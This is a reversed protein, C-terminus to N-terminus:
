KTCLKFLCCPYIKVDKDVDFHGCRPSANLQTSYCDSQDLIIIQDCLSTNTDLLSHAHLVTILISYFTLNIRKNMILNLETLM